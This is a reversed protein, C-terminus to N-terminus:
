VESTYTPIFDMFSKNSSHKLKLFPLRGGGGRTLSALTRTSTAAWNGRSKGDSIRGVKPATQNQKPYNKKTPQLHYIQHVHMM